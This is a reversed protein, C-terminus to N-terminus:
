QPRTTTGTKATSTGTTADIVMVGSFEFDDSLSSTAAGSNITDFSPVESMKLKFDSFVGQFMLSVGGLPSVTKGRVEVERLRAERSSIWVFVIASFIVVTLVISITQKIHNPKSRLTELM